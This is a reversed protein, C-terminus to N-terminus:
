KNLLEYTERLKVVIPDSYHYGHKILDEIVEELNLRVECVWAPPTEKKEYLKEYLMDAAKCVDDTSKLTRENTRLIYHQNIYNSLIKFGSLDDWCYKSATYPATLDALDYMDAITVFGYENIIEHMQNLVNKAEELSEFIPDSYGPNYKNTKRMANIEGKM